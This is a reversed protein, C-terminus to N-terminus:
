NIKLLKKFFSITPNKPVLIFNLWVAIIITTVLGVWWFFGRVKVEKIVPVKRELTITIHRNIYYWLDTSKIFVTDPQTAAKYNLQGNAFSFSSNMNKSKLENFNKLLVNNTSDCEFLANFATNEGPIAVPTLKDKEVSKEVTNNSATVIPQKSKCGAFFGVLVLAAIVLILVMSLRLEPSIKQKKNKKNSTIM